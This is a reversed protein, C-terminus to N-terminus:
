KRPIFRKWLPVKLQKIEDELQSNIEKLMKIQTHKFSLAAQNTEIQEKLHKNKKVEIMYKFNIDDVENQLEVIEAIKDQVKTALNNNFIKTREIIEDREALIENHVGIERLMKRTLEKNKDQEELYLTSLINFGKKLEIRNLKRGHDCNKKIRRKKM